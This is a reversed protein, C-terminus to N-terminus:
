HPLSAMGRHQYATPLIYEDERSKIHKGSLSVCSLSIKERWLCASTGVQYSSALRSPIFPKHIRYDLLEGACKHVLGGGVKVTFRLM